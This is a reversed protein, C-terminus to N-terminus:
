CGYRMEPVFRRAPSAYLNSDREPSLIGLVQDVSVVLVTGEIAGAERCAALVARSTSEALHDQVDFELREFEEGSSQMRCISVGEITSRKLAELVAAVREPRVTAVILKM